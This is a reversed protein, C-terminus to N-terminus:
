KKGEKRKTKYFEPAKIFVVKAGPARKLRSEIRLPLMDIPLNSTVILYLGNMLRYDIITDLKEQVWSTSHEAGLDDLVLLPVNLFRDFRTEYSRDGSEGFGRRLEELLLPVYAYRAPKGRELWRRCIAVALHTKGLAARGILTLWKIDGEEEALNRACDFAEKLAPTTEFSALTMNETAPPLECYELLMKARDRELQEIVCQCPVVRSYDPRGDENIPHVSRADRCIPCSYQPGGPGDSSAANTNKMPLSRLVEGIHEM